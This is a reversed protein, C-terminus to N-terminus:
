PKFYLQKTLQYLPGCEKVISYSCALRDYEGLSLTGSALGVKILNKFSTYGLVLGQLAFPGLLLLVEARFITSTFVLLSM